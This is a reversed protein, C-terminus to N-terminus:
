DQLNCWKDVSDKLGLKDLYDMDLLECINGNVVANAVHLATLSSFDTESSLQPQHHYAIPDIIEDVLGWLGLLYSGVEAHTTGIIEAEARYLPVAEANAKKIAEEYEGPFNTVLILKGVDHLMGILFAYGAGKEDKKEEYYIKKAFAAVDLSHDWLNGLHFKKLLKEDFQSFLEVSFVLNKITELGLFNVAQVPSAIRYRTGFFPSNVLQLIKATMSIDHSIIEAVEKISADRKLANTIETYLQPLTPLKSIQTVIKKLDPDDLRSKLWCCRKITEKLEEAECPKSLFQHTVDISKVIKEEEAHGSLVLRIINPFREKVNSLLQDGQMGPMKMDTVIVDFREKELEAIAKKANDVFVMEWEKRMRRLMRKLGMLVKPEDDVFLIRYMM